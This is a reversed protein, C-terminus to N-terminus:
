SDEYSLSAHAGLEGLPLLPEKDHETFFRVDLKLPPRITGLRRRRSIALVTVKKLQCRTIGLGCILINEPQRVLDIHM